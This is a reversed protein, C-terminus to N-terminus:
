FVHDSQLLVKKTGHENSTGIKLEKLCKQLRDKLSKPHFKSDLFQKKYDKYVVKWVQSPILNTVNTMDWNSLVFHHNYSAAMFNLYMFDM